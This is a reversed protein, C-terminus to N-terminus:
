EEPEAPTFKILLSVIRKDDMEEVTASIGNYEFSDSQTSIVLPKPTVTLKGVKTKIAYLETVLKGDKNIVNLEPTNDVSGVHILSANFVALLDDEYALEGGSIEYGDYTLAVGNYVASKDSVTVELSRQTINLDKKAVNIVYSSTVDNGDIGIIRISDKVPIVTSTINGTKESLVYDGFDFKECVIKDGYALAASLLPAEGYEVADSAFGIDITRPQVTFSMEGSYREGGFSTKAAARIKYEGVEIPLGDEWEGDAGCHEFHTKSLFAVAKVEPETGYVVTDSCKASMVWGKAVVLATILVVLLAIAIIIKVLNHIIIKFVSAVNKIKKEYADYRM